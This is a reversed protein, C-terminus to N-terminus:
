IYPKYNNERLRYTTKENQQHSGKIHLLKQKICNWKNIKGKTTQANRAVDVLDNGRSIGLFMKGMSEKLLKITKARVNFDGKKTTSPNSSLTDVV